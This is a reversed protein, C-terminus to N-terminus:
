QFQLRTGKKNFKKEMEGDNFNICTTYPLMKCAIYLLYSSLYKGTHNDSVTWFYRETCYGGSTWKFFYIDLLKYHFEPSDNGILHNLILKGICPEILYTIMFM